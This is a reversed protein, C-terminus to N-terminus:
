ALHTAPYSLRTVANISLHQNSHLLKVRTFTIYVDYGSIKLSSRDPPFQFYTHLRSSLRDARYSM